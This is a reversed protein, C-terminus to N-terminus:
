PISQISGFMRIENHEQIKRVRKVDEESWADPDRAMKQYDPCDGMGHQNSYCWCCFPERYIPFSGNMDEVPVITRADGPQSTIYGKRKLARLHNMVANQAFCFHYAIDRTSPSYSHYLRFEEIFRLVEQQRATLKPREKM